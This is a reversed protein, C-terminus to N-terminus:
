SKLDISLQTPTIITNFRKLPKLAPEKLVHGDLDFSSGHSSCYLGSTTATVQNEQHTCKMYLAIYEQESKKVLLVDYPMQLDRLILLSSEAFSSLPVNVVDKNLPTKFVPLASACASLQSMAIGVTSLSICLKCSNVLFESRKM